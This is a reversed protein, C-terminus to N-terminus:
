TPKQWRGDDTPASTGWEARGHIGELDSKTSGIEPEFCLQVPEMSVRECCAAFHQESRRRLAVMAGVGALVHSAMDRLVAGRPRVVDAM